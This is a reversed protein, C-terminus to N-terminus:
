NFDQAFKALLAGEGGALGYGDVLAVQWLFYYRKIKNLENDM